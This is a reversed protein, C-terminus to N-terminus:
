KDKLKGKSNKEEIKKNMDDVMVLFQAKFKEVQIEAERQEKDEQIKKHEEDDFLWGYVEEFELMTADKSFLCALMRVQCVANTYNMTAQQKMEYQEQKRYATLVWDLEQLDYNYFEELKINCQM